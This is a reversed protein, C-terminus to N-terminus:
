DNGAGSAAHKLIKSWIDRLKANLQARLDRFGGTVFHLGRFGRVNMVYSSIAGGPARRRVNVKRAKRGFNLIYGYFLKARGRKTGILGVQLRLLRRSVRWKIGARLAGTKEPANARMQAAIRPAADEMAHAIEVRAQEPINKLLRRFSKSGSLASGVRRRQTNMRRSYSSRAM